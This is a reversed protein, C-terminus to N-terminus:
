FRIGILDTRLLLCSIYNFIQSLFYLITLGLMLDKHFEM